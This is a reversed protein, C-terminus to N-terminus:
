QVTENLKNFIRVIEFCHTNKITLYCEVIDEPENVTITCRLSDHIRFPGKELGEDDLQGINEWIKHINSKINGSILFNDFCATSFKTNIITYFEYSFLLTYRYLFMAKYVNSRDLMSITTDAM